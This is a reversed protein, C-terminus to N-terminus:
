PSSVIILTFVSTKESFNILVSVNVYHSKVKIRIEFEVAFAQEKYSPIELFVRFTGYIRDFNVSVIGSINEKILATENSSFCPLENKIFFVFM